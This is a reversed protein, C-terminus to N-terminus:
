LEAINILNKDSKVHLDNYYELSMLQNLIKFFTEKLTLFIPFLFIKM